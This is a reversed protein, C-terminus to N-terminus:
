QFHDHRLKLGPHDMDPSRLSTPRSEFILWLALEGCPLRM